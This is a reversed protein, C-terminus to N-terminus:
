ARTHTYGLLPTGRIAKYFLPALWKVLIALLPLFATLTGSLSQLFADLSDWGVNPFWVALIGIALAVLINFINTFLPAQGDKVVGFMKLVNILVVILAAAGPAAVSLSFILLVIQEITTVEM